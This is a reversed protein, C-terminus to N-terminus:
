KAGRLFYYGGLFGSLIISAFMLLATAVAQEPTVGYPALLVLLVADRTGLGSPAIPILSMIGAITFVSILVPIATDIGVARAILVAWVFYVFWACLTWIFAPLIKKREFLKHFFSLWAFRKSVSIIKIGIIAAIATLMLGVFSWKAGFLIGAAAIALICVCAVDFLRDVIVVAIAGAMQLGAAKLYAVRGLEGLKGPTVSTLFIGINFIRWHSKLPLMVDTANTLEKMRQTKSFYALFSIPFAIVLLGVDAQQLQEMLAVRDIKSLILVFLGIGILKIAWLITRKSM